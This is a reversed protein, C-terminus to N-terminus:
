DTKKKAKAEKKKLAEFAEDVLYERIDALKAMVADEADIEDVGPVKSVVYHVAQQLKEEGAVARKDIKWQQRSWEEAYAVGERAMEMLYERRKDSLNIKLAGAIKVAINLVVLSVIVSVAKWAIAWVAGLWTQPTEADGALAFAVMTVVM